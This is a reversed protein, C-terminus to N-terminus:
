SSKEQLASSLYVLFIAFLYSLRFFVLPWDSMYGKEDFYGLTAYVIISLNALFFPLQIIKRQRFWRFILRLCHYYFLPLGLILLFRFINLSFINPAYETTFNSVPGTIIGYKFLTIISIIALLLFLFGFAFAIVNRQFTKLYIYFGAPVMHLFIFVQGVLFFRKDLESLGIAAFLHRLGIFFWVFAFLFWFLAFIFNSKEKKGTQWISFAVFLGFFSLLWGISATFLMGPYLISM